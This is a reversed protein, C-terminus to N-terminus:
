TSSSAPSPGSRSSVADTMGDALEVAAVAAPEAVRRRCGGDAASADQKLVLPVVLETMFHRGSTDRVWADDLDPYVETLILMDNGVLRRLALRLEDAQRPSALDLLLRQDGETLYVHRPAQWHERWQQLAHRFAVPDPAAAAPSTLASLRWQALALIVRGVQVRPLFPFSAAPGWQFGALQCCGDRSLETLLRCPLPARLHTLMHGATIVVDRGAAPWRVIFRDNRM